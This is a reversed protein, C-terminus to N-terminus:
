NYKKDLLSFNMWGERMIVKFWCVDRTLVNGKSVSHTVLFRTTRQLAQFNKSHTLLSSGFHEEQVISQEEENKAGELHFKVWLVKRCYSCFFLALKEVCSSRCVHILLEEM